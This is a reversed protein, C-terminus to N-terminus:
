PGDLSAQCLRHPPLGHGLEFVIGVFVLGDTHFPLVADQLDGEMSAAAGELPAFNGMSLEGLRKPIDAAVGVILYHDHGPGALGKRTGARCGLSSQSSRRAVPVLGIPLALM